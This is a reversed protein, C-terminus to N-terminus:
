ITARDNNFHFDNIETWSYYCKERRKAGYFLWPQLITSDGTM